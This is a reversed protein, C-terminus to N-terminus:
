GEEMLPGPMRRPKDRVLRAADGEAMGHSLLSALTIRPLDAAPPMWGFFGDTTLVVRGAGAEGIIAHGAPMSLRPFAPPVGPARVEMM